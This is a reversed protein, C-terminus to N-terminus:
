RSPASTRGTGAPWPRSTWPRRTSAAGPRETSRSTRGATRGASTPSTPWTSAPRPPRSREELQRKGIEVGTRDKITEQTSEFSSRAIESAAIRQLGFSYKNPPLNLELDLPMLNGVNKRPARYALREVSVEGFVSTLPRGTDEVVERRATGEKGVVVPRRPEKTKRLALHDQFLLRLVERGEVSLVKEVDGHTASLLAPAELQAVVAEFKARSAEFADTTEPLFKGAPESCASIAM